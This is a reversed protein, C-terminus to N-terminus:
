DGPRRLVIRKAKAQTGGHGSDFPAAYNRAGNVFLSMSVHDALGEDLASGVLMEANPPLFERFTQAIRDIQTLTLPLGGRINLIAKSTGELGPEGFLEFKLVRNALLDAGIRLDGSAFGIKAWGFGNVFGILDEFDLNIIGPNVALDVVSRVAALLFHDTVEFAQRFTTNPDEVVNFLNQNPIVTMADLHPALLEIARGASGARRSGEFAFPTTFMGIVAIHRGKAMEAIFPAAGSGTGGGLGAVLFILDYKGILTEIDERSERAAETGADPRSGAGLGHTLKSGILLKTVAHGNELAKADTNISVLDAGPLNAAVLNEILNGGAGGVGIVAVKPRPSAVKGKPRAEIVRPAAAPARNRLKRRSPLSELHAVLRGMDNRFDPDQRIIAANLNVIPRISPPLDNRSPMQAGSVLTPILLLQRSRLATEIEIRVFDDHDWLRSRGGPAPEIWRPGILLLFITSRDIVGTVHTRFDVGPPIADVDKFVRERGFASELRDFIRGAADASDARRYGIFIAPKGM